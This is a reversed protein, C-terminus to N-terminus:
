EVHRDAHPDLDDALRGLREFDFNAVLTAIRRGLTAEAVGGSELARVIRELDSVAGIAASERLLRAIDERRAVDALRLEPEEVSARPANVFRVGLRDRLIGFLQDTRIPKALYDVCGADRAAARTDGFASATVAVVAIGATAPDALLRRTAECGDLDPMRLDMFVVQPRHRGALAIAEHGGAATIVQAGVSELLGSLIRRNVTSDDAVLALLQQGEALRADSLFDLAEEDPSTPSMEDSPLVLPLTFYFRSGQGLVSEVSLAGGMMEILHQSITLGLGSGGAAAGTKTQTFAEFIAGIAEPEIGIGTDVVEFLLHTEDARSVTLRVEGEGTFKIANVLLNLLVQRLHRGDLAVRRPTGPAVIMSLQLGKRRASEAVLNRLDAVLQFILMSTTEIDVRGAEIKSLDLVDNILELLHSGGRTIADAAERQSATLSQDRQLLQAYGIVSNLPTRLEHSMNALFESKARTAAEASEKARRLEDDRTRRDSIDRLFAGFFYGSEARIPATITIEIPFERGSRDLATLELRKDVIPADGTELFRKLGRVHADRFSPPIITETLRLGLAEQRTWGFTREAQSNWEVIAGTADMGIFVDHATDVVLRARGESEAVRKLAQEREADVLAVLVLNAAAIAFQQEDLAWVRAPGVHELCLVGLTGQSHHWPVDLMAGIGHEELYTTSFERTRSDTRADDAAIVRETDLAAFYAPAETRRIRAGRCHTNSSRQYLGICVIADRGEIFRWAGVREVQLARACVSLIDQLRDTFQRGPEAARATVETLAARQGLLREDTAMLAREAAVQDSIDTFVTYVAPEGDYTVLRASALSWFTTGDPRRLEIRLNDVRGEALLRDKLLEREAPNVYYDTVNM